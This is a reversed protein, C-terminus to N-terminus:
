GIVARGAMVLGDAVGERDVPEPQAHPRGVQGRLRGSGRDAPGPPGPQSDGHERCPARRGPRRGVGGADRREFIVFTEGDCSPDCPKTTTPLSAVQQATGAGQHRQKDPANVVGAVAAASLPYGGQRLITVPEDDTPDTLWLYM